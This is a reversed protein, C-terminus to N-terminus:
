LHSSPLPCGCITYHVPPFSLSVVQSSLDFLMNTIKIKLQKSNPSLPSSPIHRPVSSPVALESLSNVKKNLDLSRKPSLSLSDKGATPKYQTSDQPLLLSLASYLSLSLQNEPSIERFKELMLVADSVARNDQEKEPDTNSDSISEQHTSMRNFSNPRSTTPRSSNINSMSMYESFTHKSPSGLAGTQTLLSAKESGTPGETNNGQRGIVWAAPCLAASPLALPPPPSFSEPMRPRKMWMDDLSSGTVEPSHVIDERRLEASMSHSLTSNGLM